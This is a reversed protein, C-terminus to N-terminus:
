GGEPPKAAKRKEFEEKKIRDTRLPFKSHPPLLKTQPTSELLHTSVAKPSAPLQNVM